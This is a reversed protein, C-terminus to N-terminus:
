QLCNILYKQIRSEKSVNSNSIWQSKKMPKDIQNSIQLDFSNKKKVFCVTRVRFILRMESTKCLRARGIPLPRAIQGARNIELNKLIEM